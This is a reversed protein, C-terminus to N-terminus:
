EIFSNTSDPKPIFQKFHLTWDVANGDEGNLRVSYPIQLTTDNVIKGTHLYARYPPNSPNWLEYKVVSDEVIFVGWYYKKDRILNYYSGDWFKEEHSEFEKAFPNECYIAIGNGYFFHIDVKGPNGFNMYYYGDTRMKNGTYSEKNLSLKKM